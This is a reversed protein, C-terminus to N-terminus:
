FSINIEKEATQFIKNLNSIELRVNASGSVGEETQLPLMNTNINTTEVINNNIYWNFVLDPRRIDKPSIFYPSAVIIDSGKIFHSNNLVNNWDIGLKLDKRYLDIFPQYMNIDIRGTSSYQQDTLYATVGINNSNELYDNKYIFYNKGYGSDTPMNNFDKQWTYSINKPDLKVGGSTIEPLAVVKVFSDPSPLAKGKYFPPVYSDTAEWLLVMYSPKLVTSVQSEETQSKVKIVVKTEQGFNPAKLILSKEGVGSLVSKGDVFWTMTAVDLNDSYSSLYISVDEGPAPNSPIVNAIISTSEQQAFVIGGTLFFSLSIFGLILAKLRM